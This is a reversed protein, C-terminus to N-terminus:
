EGLLIPRFVTAQASPRRGVKKEVRRDSLHSTREHPTPSQLSGM